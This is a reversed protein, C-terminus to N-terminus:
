VHNTYELIKKRLKLPEEYSSFLYTRFWGAGNMLTNLRAVIDTMLVSQSEKAFIYLQIQTACGKPKDDAANTDISNYEMYCLVPVTEIKGPYGEFIRDTSGLLNVLTSDGSLLTYIAPLTNVYM